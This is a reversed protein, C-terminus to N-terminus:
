PACRWAATVPAHGYRTQPILPYAALGVGTFLLVIAVVHAFGTRARWAAVAAWIGAVLVMVAAALYATLELGCTRYPWQTLAGALAAGLVVRGWVGLATPGTPLPALGTPRPRLTRSGSRPYPRTGTGSGPPMGSPSRRRTSDPGPVPAGSVFGPSTPERTGPRLQRLLRDVEGAMPDREPQTPQKPM